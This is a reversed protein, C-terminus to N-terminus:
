LGEIDAVVFTSGGIFILDKVDALENARKIAMNVDPIVEGFLQFKEARKSLIDAALARHISPQCFIYRAEKPFLPLIKDTDKDALVGLVVYLKTYTIKALSEVILRIGAENHGTDCITLPNNALVQWRGKLGSIRSANQLGQRIHNESIAYQDKLVELANLVVPINRTQYIGKLDCDLHDLYPKGDKLVEYKQNNPNYFCGFHDQTFHIPSLNYEAINEFVVRSEPHNESIIVPIGPKIIGAKEGAIKGITDGLFEQHDFSINTIISLQPTIINTSDLKGGMGVEIIAIDVKEYLFYEFAMAVTMEFFSPKIEEFVPKMKAVFEIIFQEPIDNGNIKIREKFDKLHPSTYLGTKYGATQFIAALMSSVSGKGNTGAVHITKFGTHPNNLTNLLKLTKDLGKNYAIGGVKQFMPLANFLYDLTQQYNM